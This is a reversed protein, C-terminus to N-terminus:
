RAGLRALTGKPLLIYARGRALMGGAIRRAEDGAGWFSDFRNPGKIAGGTDQAVWLGNVKNANALAPDAAILVPAGLPAFLPDAAVSVHPRVPVGMAGIPGDGTLERFFVWSKNQRMLSMGDQPHERIYQMIGQMSGAYQGPGNGLLGQQRMVTGIGTYNQGNDAAYGIRIVRGDPGRLRGSGQIQLFFFEVPDAAWAIELGKGALKGDEIEGREFYPQFVGNEDYRGFPTQGNPKIPADGPRAHVLDRPVGYVPVDYGPQRTRSGAIEPEYYGTVYTAGDGVQALEFRSRFFRQADAANWAAAAACVDQWDSRQTLGSTDPRALLKPCSERFSALAGQAMTDSLAFTALDPGRHVGVNIATVVPKPPAVPTSPTPRAPPAVPPRPGPIIRACAELLLFGALAAGIRSQRVNM